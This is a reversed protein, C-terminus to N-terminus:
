DCPIVELTLNVPVDHHTDDPMSIRHLTGMRCTGDWTRFRIYGDSHDSHDDSGEKFHEFELWVSDGDAHAHCQDSWHTGNDAIYRVWKDSHSPGSAPDKPVHYYDPDIVATILGGVDVQKSIDQLTATWLHGDWTVYEFSNAM